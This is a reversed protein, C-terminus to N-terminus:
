SVNLNLEYVEAHRKVVAPVRLSPDSEAREAEDGGLDAMKSWVGGSCMMTHPVNGVRAPLDLLQQVWVNGEPSGRAICGSAEPAKGGPSAIEDGTKKLVVGSVPDCGFLCQSMWPQLLSVLPTDGPLMDRQSRHIACLVTCPLATGGCQQM